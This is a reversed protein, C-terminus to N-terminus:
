FVFGLNIFYYFKKTLNSYGISAGLPGFMTNLYYSASAGLMTKHRLLDKFVPADQGVAVRFQFISNSSPKYQALLQAAVLKEWSLEVYGVGAFPMQQPMYHGQWEGGMMNNLMFPTEGDYFLLRAFLTPQITIKRSVPFAMRWMAAYDRLGIESNLEIFNDTHYAFRAHFRAGRTPFYWDNESNYDAKFEYNVFGKDVIDDMGQESDRISQHDSLVTHFDYYDWNAGISINFNRVNFNFLKLMGTHQNCTISYLKNGYEFFDIESNRFTYSVTPQFFSLPRLSWLVQGMLRKGLRLTVEMETPIKTHFPLAANVQLAVMEESDFRAGVNVTASSVGTSDSENSHLNYLTSNAVASGQQASDAATAFEENKMREKLTHRERKSLTAKRLSSLEENKLAILQDWFEMTAEEGRRIMTDVAATSFSASSYGKTNVHIHIDTLAVNEEYKHQCNHDVIQLLISSTTTLDAAKRLPEQVDVGIVYDAGMARAVDVPFNNTLGGDVLVREGMRVPAFVGPISMSARMAQGLRGSHFVQESYDVVDTAVCAFPIPLTNFDISDHYPATFADILATVNKGSIFGGGQSRGEKSRREKGGLSIEKSIVYTNQKEREQLSQKKLEERDSLVFGWDLTRVVSDIESAPHGCAYIGGVLSGMSTGCIIDIPIGARELVKLAGIHATGKAGGGSLVVAVKKRGESRGNAGPLFGM